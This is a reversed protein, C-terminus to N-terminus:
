RSTVERYTNAATSNQSFIKRHVESSTKLRMNPNLSRFHDPINNSLVRAQSNKSVQSVHQSMRHKFSVFKEDILIKPSKVVTKNFM